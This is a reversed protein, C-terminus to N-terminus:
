NTKCKMIPLFPGAARRLPHLRDLSDDAIDEDHPDGPLEVVPVRDRLVQLHLM